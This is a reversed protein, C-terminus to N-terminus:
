KQYVELTKLVQPHRAQKMVVLDELVTKTHERLRETNFAKIVVRRHPEGVPHALRVM